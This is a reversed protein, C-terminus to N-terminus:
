NKKLIKAFLKGISAFVTIRTIFINVKVVSLSCFKLLNDYIDLISSCYNWM